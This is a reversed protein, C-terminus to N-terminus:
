SGALREKTEDFHGHNAQAERVLQLFVDEITIMSIGYGTIEINRKTEPEDLTEILTFTGTEEGRPIGYILETTSERELIANNVYTKVYRTVTEEKCLSDIKDIFLHYQL